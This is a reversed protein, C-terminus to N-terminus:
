QSGLSAALRARSRSVSARSAAAPQATTRAQSCSSGARTAARTWAVTAACWRLGAVPAAHAVRGHRVQGRQQCGQRRPEAPASAAAAKSAGLRGAARSCSRARTAAQSCGRGAVPSAAPHPDLVRSARPKREWPGSGWRNSKVAGSATTCASLPWPLLLRASATSNRSVPAVDRLSSSPPLGPSNWPARRLQVQGGTFRDPDLHAQGGAARQPHEAALQGAVVPAGAVARANEREVADGDVGRGLGPEHQGVWRQGCRHQELVAQAVRDCGLRPGRRSRGSVAAGAPM